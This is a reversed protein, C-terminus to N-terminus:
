IPILPPIAPPLKGESLCWFKVNKLNHIVIDPSIQQTAGLTHMGGSSRQTEHASMSRHGSKHLRQCM